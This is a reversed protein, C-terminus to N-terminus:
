WRLAAPHRDRLNHCKDSITLPPIQQDRSVVVVFHKHCSTEVNRWLCCFLMLNCATILRYDVYSVIFSEVWRKTSNFSVVSLCSAYRPRKTVASSSTVAKLLSSLYTLLYILAISTDHCSLTVERARCCCNRIVSNSSTHRWAVASSLFHRLLYSVSRRLSNWIRIAVVPFAWEGPQSDPVPFLSNM